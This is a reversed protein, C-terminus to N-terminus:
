GGGGFVCVCRVGGLLVQCVCVPIYLVALLGHQFVQPSVDGTLDAGGLAPAVGGGQSKVSLEARWFDCFFPLADRKKQKMM